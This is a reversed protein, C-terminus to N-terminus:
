ENSRRAYVTFLDGFSLPITMKGLGAASVVGDMLHGLPRAFRHVRTALYDLTVYRGQAGQWLIEFGVRNLLRGLTKRSFYHLHMDMFWPWRRGMLRAALSDVDMTHVAIIGGPVLLRHAKTLESAPDELHEIVDWLTITDFQQGQVEPTDLTGTIVPLGREQAIGAAWHSPELGYAKWGSAEAVEVFVGIYAGIDLLRRGNPPGTWRELHELHKAFTRERGVREALYIEDEVAAYADLLEEGGWTPNAYVHGCYQCKVIQRHRGYGASTCRFVELEPHDPAEATAPFRLRWDDRGCVNCNVYNM